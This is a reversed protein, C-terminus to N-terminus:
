TSSTISGESVRWFNIRAKLINSFLAAVSGRLFCPLIGKYNARIISFSLGGGTDSIPPPKQYFPLLLNFFYLLMEGFFYCSDITSCTTKLIIQKKQM